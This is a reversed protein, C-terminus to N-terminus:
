LQVKKKNKTKYVIFQNAINIGGFPIKNNINCYIDILWGGSKKPNSFIKLSFPIGFNYYNIKEYEIINTFGGSRPLLNGRKQFTTYSFGINTSFKIKRKRYLRGYCFEVTSESNSINSSSFNNNLESLRRSTVCIFNNGKMLIIEGMRGGGFANTHNPFGTSFGAGLTMKVFFRGDTKISDQAYSSSSYFISLSIFFRVVLKNKLIINNQM